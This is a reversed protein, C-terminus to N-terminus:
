RPLPPHPVPPPPVPRAPRHPLLFMQPREGRKLNRGVRPGGARAPPLIAATQLDYQAYPNSLIREDIESRVAVIAQEDIQGPAPKLFRDPPLNPSHPLVHLRDASSDRLLIPPGPPAGVAPTSLALWRSLGAYVVLAVAITCLAPRRLLPRRFSVSLGFDPDDMQWTKPKM